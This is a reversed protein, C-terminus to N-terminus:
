YFRFELKVRGSLLGLKFVPQGCGQFTSPPLKLLGGRANGSRCLAYNRTLNKKKKSPWLHLVLINKKKSNEWRETSNHIAIHYKVPGWLTLLNMKKSTEGGEPHDLYLNLLLHVPSPNTAIWVDGWPCKLLISANQWPPRFKSRKSSPCDPYWVDLKLTNCNVSEKLVLFELLSACRLQLVM